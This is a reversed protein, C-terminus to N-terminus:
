EFQLALQRPDPRPPSTVRHRSGCVPCRSPTELGLDASAGSADASGLLERVRRRNVGLKRAIEAHSRGDHELTHAEYWRLAARASPIDVDKGGLRMCVLSAKRMGILAVLPSKRKPRRPFYRRTGGFNRAIAVATDIGVTRAIDGLIGPLVIRDNDSM